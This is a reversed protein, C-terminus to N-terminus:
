GRKRILFYGLGLVLFTAPEPIIHLVVHSATETGRLWISFSTDNAWYGNLYQGTYYFGYGYINVISSDSASIHYGIQGGSLNAISTNYVILHDISGGSMNVISENQAYFGHLVDGANLNVTSTQYTYFDLVQGGTMNVTATDWVNVTDFVNGDTIWGDEYFDITTASACVPLLSLIAFIIKWLRTKMVEKEKFFM